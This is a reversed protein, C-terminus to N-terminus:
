SDLFEVEVVCDDSISAADVITRITDAMKGKKGIVRGMDGEGVGVEMFVGDDERNSYSDVVVALPDNVVTEIVYKLVAYSVPALDTNSM